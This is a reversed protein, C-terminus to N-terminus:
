SLAIPFGTVATLAGGVAGFSLPVFETLLVVMATRKNGDEFVHDVLLSRILYSLEYLWSKKRRIISFAFDLSNENHLTGSEGIEQNM